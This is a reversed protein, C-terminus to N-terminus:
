VFVSSYVRYRKWFYINAAYMLTHLVIFGFLSYLPFMTEMYLVRGEKDLINRARIILALAVTLAFTCGVLFGTSFTVRHREKKAKPRLIGMGKRRNSNSFHKIFTAEVREMLKSVEESSSLYSNDVMAMYSKSATRSAIKDYKKMIKSCALINLFSYSKLLRLKHYFEIFAKKLQKEAKKLNDKTFKLDTQNSLNLFGIITSRPTEQTTNFKVHNLIELPAPRITRITNQNLRQDNLYVPKMEIADKDDSSGDSQGQNNSSEEDIVDMPIRRSARAASPTSASIAARSAEIDLSLRTIEELSNVWGKPNEVKIRFAILAEMQKNLVAAEKMVEEVKSKYFKVVKNFEGDLKEFYVLEYKGGEDAANLFMTELGEEGNQRVTNVLIVQNEIDSPTQPPNSRPTILGSFARYLTLNKRRSGDQKIKPNSRRKFVQIEKLLTKLFNYDMYAEQWEPVMQSIFEKGFKM